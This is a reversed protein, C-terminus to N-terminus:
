KVTLRMLEEMEEPVIAKKQLKKMIKPENSSIERILCKIM